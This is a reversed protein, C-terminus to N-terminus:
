AHVKSAYMLKDAEVITAKINDGKGWTACGWSLALHYKEYKANRKNWAALKANLRKEVMKIDNCRSRPLILMFEDGGVRFVMDTDRISAKLMKAVTILIEDGVAHGYTDNALKFKNLDVMVVSISENRRTANLLEHQIYEDFYHRNYAGTLADKIAVSVLEKDRIMLFKILVSILEDLYRPTDERLLDIVKCQSCHAIKQSFTNMENCCMTKTLMWCRVEEHGYAECNEKGCNNVLWCRIDLKKTLPNWSAWFDSLSDSSRSAQIVFEQLKGLIACVAYEESNLRKITEEAAQLLQESNNADM